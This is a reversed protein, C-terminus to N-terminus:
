RPATMSVSVWVRQPVTVTCTRQLPSRRARLVHSSERAGFEHRSQQVLIAADHAAFKPCVQRALLRSAIEVVVRRSGAARRCSSAAPAKYRSLARRRLVEPLRRLVATAM